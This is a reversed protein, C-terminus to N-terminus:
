PIQKLAPGALATLKAIVAGPDKIRYSLSYFEQSFSVLAGRYVIEVGAEKSTYWSFGEDGLGSTPKVNRANGKNYDIQKKPGGPPVQVTLNIYSDGSSDDYSCSAAFAANLPSKEGGPEGFFTQVQADSIVTCADLDDVQITAGANGASTGHAVATTEPAAASPEPDSGCGALGLGVAMVVGVVIRGGSM